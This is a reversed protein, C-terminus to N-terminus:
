KWGNENRIRVRNTHQNNVTGFFFCPIPDFTISTSYEKEDEVTTLVLITKSKPNTVRGTDLNHFRKYTNGFNDLHLQSIYFHHEVQRTHNPAM